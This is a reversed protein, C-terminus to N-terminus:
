FIISSFNSNLSGRIMPQDWNYNAKNLYGKSALIDNSCINSINGILYSITSFITSSALYMATNMGLFTKAPRGAGLFQKKNKVNLIKM